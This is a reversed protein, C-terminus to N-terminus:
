GNAKGELSDVWEAPYGDKGFIKDTEAKLYADREENTKIKGIIWYMRKWGKLFARCRMEGYPDKQQHLVICAMQLWVKQLEAEEHNIQANMAENCIDNIKQKEWDPLRNWSRPMRETPERYNARM